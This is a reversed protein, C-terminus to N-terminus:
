KESIIWEKCLECVCRRPHEIYQLPEFGVDLLSKGIGFLSNMQESRNNFLGLIYSERIVKYDNRNNMIAHVRDLPVFELLILRSGIRSKDDLRWRGHADPM